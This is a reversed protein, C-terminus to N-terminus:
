KATVKGDYSVELSDGVAGEATMGSLSGSATSDTDGESSDDSGCATVGILLLLVTLLALLSRRM